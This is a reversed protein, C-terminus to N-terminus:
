EEFRLDLMEPPIDGHPNGVLTEWFGPTFSQLLMISGVWKVGKYAWKNQPAVLRMPGGNEPPLPEDDLWLAILSERAEEMSLCSAYRGEIASVLAYAANPKPIVADLLYSVPVGRWRCGQKSWGWVCHLDWVREESALDQLEHLPFSLQAGVLGEMSLRWEKPQPISAELHLAPLADTTPRQVRRVPARRPPAGPGRRPGSM